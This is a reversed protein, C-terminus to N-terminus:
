LGEGQFREAYGKDKVQGLAEDAGKGVKFEIVYVKDRFLVAMDLRGRSILVESRADYGLM